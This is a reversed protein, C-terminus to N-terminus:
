GRKSPGRELLPGVCEAINRVSAFLELQLDEDGMEIKFEKAVATIMQFHKMSDWAPIQEMSDEFNIEDTKFTEKLIKVLKEDLEKNHYKM